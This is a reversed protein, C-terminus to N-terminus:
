ALNELIKKKVQDFKKPHRCKLIGKILYLTKELVYLKPNCSIIKDANGEQYYENIESVGAKIIRHM